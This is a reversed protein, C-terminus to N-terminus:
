AAERAVAQRKAWEWPLPEDVRTAPWLNTFQQLLGRFRENQEPALSSVGLM